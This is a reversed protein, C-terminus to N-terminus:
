QSEVLREKILAEFQEKGIREIKNLSAKMAQDAIDKSVFSM